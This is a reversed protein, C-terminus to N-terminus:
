NTSNPTKSLQDVVITDVPLTRYELRLGLPRLAERINEVAYEIATRDERNPGSLETSFDFHYLSTLGTKDQIPMRVNSSLAAALSATSGSMEFHMVFRGKSAPFSRKVKVETAASPARLGSGALELAPARSERTEHHFVLGFREALLSRLM